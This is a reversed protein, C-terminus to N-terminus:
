SPQQKVLGKKSAKDSDALFYTCSKANFRYFM